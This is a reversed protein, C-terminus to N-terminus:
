WFEEYDTIGSCWIESLAKVSVEAYRFSHLSFSVRCHLLFTTPIKKVAIAIISKLILIAVFGVPFHNEPTM